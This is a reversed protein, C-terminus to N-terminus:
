YSMNQLVEPFYQVTIRRFDCKLTFDTKLGKWKRTFGCDEKKSVRLLELIELLVIRSFYKVKM